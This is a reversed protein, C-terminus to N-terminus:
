VESLYVLVSGPEELGHTPIPVPCSVPSQSASGLWTGVLLWASPLSWSQAHGVTAGRWGPVLAMVCPHAPAIAGLAAVDLGCRGHSPSPVDRGQTAGSSMLLGQGEDRRETPVMGPCSQSPLDLAAAHPHWTWGLGAVVLALPQIEAPGGQPQCGAGCCRHCGLVVM